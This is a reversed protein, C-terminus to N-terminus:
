PTRDFDFLELANKTLIKERREAGIEARTLTRGPDDYDWHPYDSAFLIRDDMDIQDLLRGLYHPKDPQDLPQTSLWFHRRIIESPREELHPADERAERWIRDLRWMLTPLWALGGEELVVQLTPFREFLGGYVFSTLQAPHSTFQLAHTNCYYTPWGPGGLSGSWGGAHVVVPLGRDVLAEYIPWYKADGLPERTLSGLTANLFRPNGAWREIEQVAGVPDEFPITIGAYLREDSAIWKEAMWENTARALARGLEGSQSMKLVENIPHMVGKVINCGDLHQERLFDPDSGGPGGTPPLSDLRNNNVRTPPGPLVGGFPIQGGGAWPRGHWRKPLWQELETASTLQPHIDVDVIGLRERRGV